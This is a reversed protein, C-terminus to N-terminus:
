GSPVASRPMRGAGALGVAPPCGRLHWLLVDRHVQWRTLGRGGFLALPALAVVYFLSKLLRLFIVTAMSATGRNVRFFHYLSRHYEIRTLAPDRRKSSAGSLHIAFATPLHVVRWGAERARWCWETEELFFFYAEPLPGVDRVVAVRAFIAAGTVAEVDVPDEGIWRRSPFRRRFLAQFLAKPLLETAVTPLNHVSNQRRGDPHLLQPGVIGVDPHEDLFSLCLELTDPMVRADSNLLLVHRGLIARLGANCGAAFGVNTPLAIVRVAPFRERIAEETGDTSGNDVVLIEADTAPALAATVSALCDLALERTNWTVVVVSLRCEERRRAALHHSASTREM